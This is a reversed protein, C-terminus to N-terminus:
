RKRLHRDLVDRFSLYLLDHHNTPSFTVQGVISLPMLSMWLAVSLTELPVDYAKSIDALPNYVPIREFIYKFLSAM